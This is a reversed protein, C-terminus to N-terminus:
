QEVIHHWEGNNVYKSASGYENKFASYSDFGKVTNSPTAKSFLSKIASTIKFSAAATVGGVVAVAGAYCLM